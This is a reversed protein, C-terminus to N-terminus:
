NAGNADLEKQIMQMQDDILSCIIYDDSRMKTVLDITKQRQELLVEKVPRGMFRQMADAASFDKGTKKDRVKMHNTFIDELMALVQMATDENSSATVYDLDPTPNAYDESKIM